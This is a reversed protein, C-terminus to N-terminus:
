NKWKLVGAFICLKRALYKSSASASIFAASRKSFWFDHARSSIKMAPWLSSTTTWWNNVIKWSRSLGTLTTTSSSASSSSPSPIEIPTPSRSSLACWIECFKSGVVRTSSWAPPSIACFTRRLRKFPMWTVPPSSIWFSIAHQMNITNRQNLGSNIRSLMNLNHASNTIFVFADSFNNEEKKDRNTIIQRQDSAVFNCNQKYIYLPMGPSSSMGSIWYDICKQLSFVSYPLWQKLRGSCCDVSHFRCRAVYSSWWGSYWDLCFRVALPLRAQCFLGGKRVGCTLKMYM